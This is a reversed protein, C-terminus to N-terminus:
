EDEDKREKVGFIEGMSHFHNCSVVGGTARYIMCVPECVCVDCLNLNEM